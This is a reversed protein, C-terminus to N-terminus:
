WARCDEPMRNVLKSVELVRDWNLSPLAAVLDADTVPRQNLSAM